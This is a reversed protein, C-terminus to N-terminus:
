REVKSRPSAMRMRKGPTRTGKSFPSRWRRWTHVRRRAGRTARANKHTQIDRVTEMGIGSRGVVPGDRFYRSMNLGGILAKDAEGKFKVRYKWGSEGGETVLDLTIMQVRNTWGRREVERIFLELDRELEMQVGPKTGFLLTRGARLHRQRLPKGWLIRAEKSHFPALAMMGPIEFDERFRQRIGPIVKEDLKGSSWLRVQLGTECTLCKLSTGRITGWHGLTVEAVTVIVRVGQHGDDELIKTVFVEAATVFYEVQEVPYPVGGLYLIEKADALELASCDMAQILHRGRERSAAEVYEEM